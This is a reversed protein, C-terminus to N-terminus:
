ARLALAAPSAIADHQTEERSTAAKQIYADFSPGRWRLPQYRNCPRACNRALIAWNQCRPGPGWPVPTAVFATSDCIRPAWPCEPICVPDSGEGRGDFCHQLTLALPRVGGPQMLGAQCLRGKGRCNDLCWLFLFRSPAREHLEADEQGRMGVRVALRIRVLAHMGADGPLDEGGVAQAEVTGPEGLVVERGLVADHRVHPDVGAIERRQGLADLEAHRHHRQREGVRHAHDLVGGEDVDQAAAAHRQAEAGAVALVLEVAEAEVELLAAVHLSSASAIM